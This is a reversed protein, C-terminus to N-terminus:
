EAPPQSANKIPELRREIAERARFIRSRVTGVPCHVIEAIEDYSLGDIERLMIVNRLDEPLDDIVALLINEMEDYLLTNEPTSYDKNNTRSVYQELDLIDISTEARRRDKTVLYNKATNVAIRYLWTYFSSDGRFSDLARFAKLFAEQTVDLVESPDSVYRAVLKFVRYQYKVVLEDFARKNGKQVEVILHLDVEHENRQMVM